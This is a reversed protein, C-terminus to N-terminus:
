EGDDTLMDDEMNNSTLSVENDEDGDNKANRTLRKNKSKPM